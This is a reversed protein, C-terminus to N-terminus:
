KKGSPVKKILEEFWNLVLHIQTNIQEQKSSKIILFHRGDAAVDYGLQEADAIFAKEFLLKSTGMKFTPATTIEVSMMKSGNIYLLEGTRAWIPRSGGDTSVQWVGGPNPFPRVFVESRGTQVSQYAVWHGDPSFSLWVSADSPTQSFKQPKRERDPILVFLNWQGKKDNMQFALSRGDPSWANPTPYLYQGEMLPEPKGSGDAPIWFLNGFRGQDSRFAIRKSDPTWVPIFNRGQFTLRNFRRNEIDYTWIDDNAEQITLAIRKGDPSLRPFSYSRPPVELPEENGNRDLWVPIRDAGSFGGPVYVLDGGPSFGFQAIGEFSQMVGELLPEGNGQVELREPDFPIAFLNGERAYVLHGTPVYRGDAGGEVLTKEEGTRLDRVKIRSHDIQRDWASFLLAKGGPLFQPWRTYDRNVQTKVLTEPIGGAEPVQILGDDGYGPAFVVSGRDGWTIGCTPYSTDAIPLPAGGEVPVKMLKTETAYGLWRGDPSFFPNFGGETGKVPM